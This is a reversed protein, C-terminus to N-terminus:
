KFESEKKELRVTTLASSLKCMEVPDKGVDVWLSNIDNGIGLKRATEMNRGDIFPALVPWVGQASGVFIDVGVDGFGKIEKLLGRIKQPKSNAAKLINNLDGDYNERVIKALDGLATATKERYHTYGGKTLVETREQWTSKELTDLDHYGAEILCKVSENAINHSIRASTLMANFVLALINPATPQTPEPLGLAELPLVGYITILKQITPNARNPSTKAEEKPEDTTTVKAKKTAPSKTKATKSNNVEDNEEDKRKKPTAKSPAQTKKKPRGNKEQTPKPHKPSTEEELSAAQSLAQEQARTRAM